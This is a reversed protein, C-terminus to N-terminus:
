ARGAKSVQNPTFGSTDFPNRSNTKSCYNPRWSHTLPRPFVAGTTTIPSVPDIAIPFLVAAAMSLRMPTGTCSESAM